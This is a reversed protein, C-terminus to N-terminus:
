QSWPQRLDHTLPALVRGAHSGGSVELITGTVWSSRDSALFVVAEAIDNPHGTRGLPTSRLTLNIYPHNDDSPSDVVQDLVLGPAVANVRIGYPGLEIALAQTFANVAAKSAAYHAGGARPSTAAGSSINVIVGRTGDAVWRRALERSPLMSGRANVAFVRDWDDPELELVPRNPFIGHAHVLLDIAGLGDTAERVMRAVDEPSSVDGSVAVVPADSAGVSNATAKAKNPDIDSVAVAAGERHLATVIARGLRGGGGTVLAKRQDLLM